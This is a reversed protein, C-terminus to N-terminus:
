EHDLELLKTLEENLKDLTLVGASLARRDANIRQRVTSVDRKVLAIQDKLLDITYAFKVPTDKVDTFPAAFYCEYYDVHNGVDNCIMVKGQGWRLREYVKGNTIHSTRTASICKVYTKM